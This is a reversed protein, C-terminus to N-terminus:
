EFSHMAVVVRDIGSLDAVTELWTWGERELLERVALAQTHGVEIALIGGDVLHHKAQKALLEYFELGSPGSFLAGEPEFDQVEPMLVEDNAIYPPNSVIMDFTEGVLAAFADSVVFDVRANLFRANASAIALADPSVDVAVVDWSPQELKLTIAICGSGTGVDLVRPADGLRQRFAVEVLTETDQRPILTAPSVGFPRGFFERYGVIYALPERNERRQLLTEGALENFEHEPHAFLWTREVRLVHAALVQADLRASEIGAASLRAEAERLWDSLRM